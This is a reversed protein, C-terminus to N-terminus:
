GWNQFSRDLGTAPDQDYFMRSRVQYELDPPPAADVQRNSVAVIAIRGIGVWPVVLSM